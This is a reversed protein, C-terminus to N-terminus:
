WSIEQRFPLNSGSSSWFWNAVSARASCAYLVQIFLFCLRVRAKQIDVLCASKMASNKKLFCIRATETCLLDLIRLFSASSCNFRPDISIMKETSRKLSPTSRGLISVTKISRGVSDLIMKRCCSPRPRLCALSVPLSFSTTSSIIPLWM